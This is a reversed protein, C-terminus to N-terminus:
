LGVLQRCHLLTQIFHQFIAPWEIGAIQVRYTDCQKAYIESDVSMILKDRKNLVLQSEELDIGHTSITSKNARITVNRLTLTDDIRVQALAM